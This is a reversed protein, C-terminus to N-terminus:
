DKVEKDDPYRKRIEEKEEESATEFWKEAESQAETFIADKDTRGDEASENALELAKARILPNINGSGTPFDNMGFTM